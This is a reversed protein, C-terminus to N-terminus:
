AAQRPVPTMLGLAAGAPDIIICIRGITPVDFPAAALKGGAKEVKAACADVDAVNVYAMWHPPVGAFQPGIMELMGGISEGGVNWLHYQAGAEGPMPMSTPEWGIVDAYFRRAGEVDTTLLENWMFTSPKSEAM